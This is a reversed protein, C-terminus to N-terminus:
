GNFSKFLTGLHNIKLIYDIADCRERSLYPKLAVLLALRKDPPPGKKQPEQQSPQQGHASGSSLMPAITSIVEPLKAMLEPNSLVSGIAGSVDVPLEASQQPPAPSQSPSKPPPSQTSDVAQNAATEESSPAPPASAGGVGSLLSIMSKLLEPNGLLTDIAGSIKESNLEDPM